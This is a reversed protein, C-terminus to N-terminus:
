FPNRVADITREREDLIDMARQVADAAQQGKGTPPQRYAGGTNARTFRDWGFANRYAATYDAYTKGKSICYNKFVELVENPNTSTYFGQRRREILWDAIHAVSLDELTVKPKPPIRPPKKAPKPEAQPSAELFSNESTNISPESNVPYLDTNSSLSLDIDKKVTGQHNPHCQTVELPSLIDSNSNESPSVTDPPSLIDHNPKLLYVTSRNFRRTKEILGMKELEALSRLVTRESCSTKKAINPISPWCTKDDNANDALALLVFKITPNIDMEWVLSMLKISM